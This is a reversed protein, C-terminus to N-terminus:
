WCYKCNLGLHYHRFSESEFLYIHMKQYPICEYPTDIKHWFGLM